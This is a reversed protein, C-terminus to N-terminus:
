GPPESGAPVLGTDVPPAAAPPGEPTTPGLFGPELLRGIEDAPLPRAFYFGQATRCGLVLLTERQELEEVGEAVTELHLSEAMALIARVLSRADDDLHVRDVFSRDIKLQDLPFQRLRGLSSYGTGFDDVSLRIGLGKLNSLTARSADADSMAVSETIELTLQGPDLGSEALATDVRRLLGPDQLQVSSLNVALRLRPGAGPAASWERVQACATGLVWSGITTILGTAEALPVFSTPPVLTGDPHQWRLLAEVGVIRGSDLEVIPQYHLVFQHEEVARRLDSEMRVRSVTEDLMSPEFRRTQGKGAHKARYMALDAGRLLGEADVDSVAVGISATLHVTHGGGVLPARLHEHLREALEMPQSPDTVDEVLVALEDGGLRALTDSQRVCASLREAVAVLVQDGVAHGLSDNVRKFDDLDVLLLAVSEGRRRALSLAHTVRDDLLARNALGTLHDHLAQHRLEAHSRQLERAMGNFASAVEGLEDQRDLAVRHSLHGSGLQRAGAVLSRLPGTFSRRLHWTALSAVALAAVWIAGMTVMARQRTRRARGLEEKLDDVAVGEARELHSSASRVLADYRPPSAAVV